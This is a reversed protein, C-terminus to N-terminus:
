LNAWGPWIVKNGAIWQEKMWRLADKFDSPLGSDFVFLAIGYYDNEGAIGTNGVMFEALTGVSYAPDIYSWVGRLGTDGTFAVSGLSDTWSHVRIASNNPDQWSDVVASPISYDNRSWNGYTGPVTSDYGANRCTRAYIDGDSVSLLQGDGAVNSEGPHVWDGLANGDRVIANAAYYYSSKSPVWEQGATTETDSVVVTNPTTARISCGDGDYVGVYDYASTKFGFYTNPRAPMNSLRQVGFLIFSKTGIAPLTGFSPTASNSGASMPHAVGVEVRVANEVVSSLAAATMVVGGKIDTISGGGAEVM